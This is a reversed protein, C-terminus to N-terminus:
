QDFPDLIPTASVLVSIVEPQDTPHRIGDEDSISNATLARKVAESLTRHRETHCLVPHEQESRDLLVVLVYGYTFPDNHIKDKMNKNM